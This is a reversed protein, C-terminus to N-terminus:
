RRLIEIKRELMERFEEDELLKDLVMDSKSRTTGKNIINVLADKDLPLYCRKCYKNTPPNIEECRICRKTTFQEKGNEETGIQIGYTKLLATDVDRGSLHVYVSAMDSSQTWGFFEKMQAETLHSALHTARSHRFIHPYIRKVIKTQRRLLALLDRVCAYEIGYGRKRRTWLPSNPDGKAPHTNLWEALYTTSTVIRVRRPGTKGNVMLKAGYQDLEVDKVRMNLMEGIRCGSEYLVSILAKDRPNMAANILKEVEEVTLLEEPLKTNNKKVTTKIWKTIQPREEKMLWSYFKRLTIKYFQRTWESLDESNVRAIVAKLDNEDAKDMDKSMWTAIRTLLMVYRLTRGTSLYLQCEDKFNRILEKNRSSLSSKELRELARKLKGQYNHPDNMALM